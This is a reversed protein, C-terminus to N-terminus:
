ASHVDVCRKAVQILWKALEVPTQEREKKTIEKKQKRKSSSSSSVVYEIADYRLPIVPLDNISCGVIYLLTSKKAKHGFWFQDISISYGGYKDTQGPLPLYTPWLKSARPHELVGGNKRITDIAFFALEKEGPLPKAFHSLQGWARCPPHAIVPNKGNFNLANREADWCDIGMQKYISDKRVFLASVIVDGLVADYAMPPKQKNNSDKNKM